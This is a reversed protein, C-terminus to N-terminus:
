FIYIAALPSIANCRFYENLTKFKLHIDCFYVNFIFTEITFVLNLHTVAAVFVLQKVINSKTFYFVNWAILASILMALVLCIGIFIKFRFLETGCDVIIGHGTMQFYFVSDIQHIWSLPWSRSTRVVKEVALFSSIMSIIRRRFVYTFLVTCFSFAFSASTLIAMGYNFITTKEGAVGVSDDRTTLDYYMLSLYVICFVTMQILHRPLEILEDREISYRFQVLGSYEALPFMINNLQNVLSNSNFKNAGSPEM